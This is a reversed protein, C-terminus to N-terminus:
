YCPQSSARTAQSDTSRFREAQETESADEDLAMSDSTDTEPIGVIPGPTTRSAMLALLVQAWITVLTVVLEQVAPVVVAMTRQSLSRVLGAGGSGDANEGQAADEFAEGDDDSDHGDKNEM